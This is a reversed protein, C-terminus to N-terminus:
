LISYGHNGEAQMLVGDERLRSDYQPQQLQGLSLKQPASHAPVHYVSVTLLLKKKFICAKNSFSAIQFSRNRKEGM